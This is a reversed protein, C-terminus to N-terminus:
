SPRAGTWVATASDRPSPANASSMPTWTRTDPNYTAGDGLYSGGNSGGWVIMSTGAWVAVHRTRPSPAGAAATPEWADTCKQDKCSGFCQHGCLGCDSGSTAVDVCRAPGYFDALCYTDGTTPCVCQAKSCVTGEKAGCDDTVLCEVCDGLLRRRM